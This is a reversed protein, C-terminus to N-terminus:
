KKLQVALRAVDALAQAKEADDGSVEASRLRALAEQYLRAAYLRISRETVDSLATDIDTKHEEMFIEAEFQAQRADAENLVTEVHIADARADGMKKLVEKLGVVLRQDSTSSVEPVVTKEVPVGQKPIKALEVYLVSEDVGITRAILSVFYSVELANPIRAILPLVERGVAVRFAREDSVEKRVRALTSEVIHVANKVADKFKQPSALIADAPDKGEFMAVKVMCGMPLALEAARRAALVGAADNDYAILINDTYRKIIKAHEETFATGSTAIANGYGAQHVMLLDMQGEVLMASKLTRFNKKAEHLGFLIQSKNFLAGDPSNLYKAQPHKPDDEFIRGSFGVVRGAIDRLPFMIRGRFRDYTRLEAGADDSDKRKILGAKELIPEAHGANMLEGKLATWDRPAYGVGWETITKETLGRSMLYTHADKKHELQAVFFDQAAQLAAYLADVEKTDRRTGHEVTVGAKEALLMLAGKFDVGEMESMFTFMDGGKGTSFCHYLGREPSVFFSPSKEKTFPSLGKYYRGARVLKVYPEVVDLITLRNKIATVTDSM